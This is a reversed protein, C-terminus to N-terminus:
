KHGSLSDLVKGGNLSINICESLGLSDGLVLLDELDKMLRLLEVISVM